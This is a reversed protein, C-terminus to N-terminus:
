NRQLNRRRSLTEEKKKDWSIGVLGLRMQFAPITLNSGSLKRTKEFDVLFKQALDLSARQILELSLKTTQCVVTDSIQTGIVCLSFIGSIISKSVLVAGPSQACTPM